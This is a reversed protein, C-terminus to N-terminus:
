EWEGQVALTLTRGPAPVGGRLQYDADTLNGVRATGTLRRGLRAFLSLEGSAFAPLVM